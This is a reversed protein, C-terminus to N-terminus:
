VLIAKIIMKKIMINKIFKIKLLIMHDVYVIIVMIIYNKNIKENYYADIFYTELNSDNIQKIKKGTLDFVKIPEYGLARSYDYCNSTIIYINNNDKLFCASNLAGTQNINKLNLICEFNKIDWLKLNNDKDSISLIIDRKNLSDLIHRFNTIGKNHANKMENIIKQNKVDYAIISYLVKSYILYIIKNISEFVCFTNDFSDGFPSSEFNIYQFCDLLKPNSNFIIQSNNKEKIKKNIM